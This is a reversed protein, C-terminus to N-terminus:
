RQVQAANIADEISYATVLILRTASWAVLSGKLPSVGEKDACIKVGVGM